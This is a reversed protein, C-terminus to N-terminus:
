YLARWREAAKDLGRFLRRLRWEGRGLLDKARLVPKFGTEVCCSIQCGSQKVADLMRVM